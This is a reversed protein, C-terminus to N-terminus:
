KDKGKNTKSEDEPWWNRWFVTNLLWVLGAAGLYISM